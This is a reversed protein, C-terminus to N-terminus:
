NNNLLTQKKQLYLQYKEESLVARYLSDRMNEVRQIHVHLSDMSAYQQRKAMKSQHLQLNIQYLQDKQQVSLQLSDKMRVAVKEAYAEGHTQQALAMSSIFLLAIFSLITKMNIRNLM